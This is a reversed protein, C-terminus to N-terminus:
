PGATPISPGPNILTGIGMRWSHGGPNMNQMGTRESAGDAYTIIVLANDPDSPNQTLTATALGARADVSHVLDARTIRVPPANDATALLAGTDRRALAQLYCRVLGAQGTVAKGQIRVPWSCSPTGQSQLAAWASHGAWVAGASVLIIAAIKIAAAAPHRPRPRAM